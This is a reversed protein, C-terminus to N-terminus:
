LERAAAVFRRLGATRNMRKWVLITEIGFAGTAFPRAQLGQALLHAIGAPYITVGLGAAVLGLLALTTSAELRVDLRIGAASFM